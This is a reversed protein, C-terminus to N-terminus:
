RELVGWRGTAATRWGEDLALAAPDLRVQDDQDHEGPEYARVMRNGPQDLDTGAVQPEIGGGLPGHATVPAVM